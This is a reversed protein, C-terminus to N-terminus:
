LEGRHREVLGRERAAALEPNDGAIATSLVVEVDDGAPLNVADHGIAPAMGAARVRELYPSEGRDSGTVRAGLAHAVLALGSM